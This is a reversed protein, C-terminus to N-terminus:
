TPRGPEFMNPKICSHFGTCLGTTGKFIWPITVQVITTKISTVLDRFGEVGVLIMWEDLQRRIRDVGLSNNPCPTGIM